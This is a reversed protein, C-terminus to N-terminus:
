NKNKGNTIKEERQHRLKEKNDISHVNKILTNSILLLFPNVGPSTNMSLQLEAKGSQEKNFSKKVAMEMNINISYKKSEEKMLEKLISQPFTESTIMLIKIGDKETKYIDAQINGYNETSILVSIYDDSFNNDSGNKNGIELRFSNPDTLPLWPLYMLIVAKLTQVDSNSSAAVFSIYKTIESILEDQLSMGIQNLQALMKYLNTMAEKSSNKLLVSLASLDSNAALLLLGLSQNIGEKSSTLQTLLEEFNKPMNLLQKLMDITQRSDLAALEATTQSLQQMTKPLITQSPQNLVTNENQQFIASNQTNAARAANYGKIFSNTYQFPNINTM